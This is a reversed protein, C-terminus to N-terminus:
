SSGPLSVLYRYMAKEKRPKVLFKWKAKNRILRAIKEFPKWLNPVTGLAISIAGLCEPETM